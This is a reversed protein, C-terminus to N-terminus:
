KYFCIASELAGPVEPYQLHSPSFVILLTKGAMGSSITLGTAKYAYVLCGMQGIDLTLYAVARCAEM